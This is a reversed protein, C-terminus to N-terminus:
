PFSNDVKEEALSPHYRTMVKKLFGSKYYVDIPSFHYRDLDTM